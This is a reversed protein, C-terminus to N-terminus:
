MATLESRLVGLAVPVVALSKLLKTADSLPKTVFDPHARLVINGLEETACELLQGVVEEDPLHYGSKFTEWRRLFANWEESSSNLKVRPRQLKPGKVPPRPSSAAPQQHALAHLNLLAAAGVVEVDDTKYTCSPLPCTLSPM